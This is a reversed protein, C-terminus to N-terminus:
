TKGAWNKFHIAKWISQSALEATKGINNIEIKKQRGQYGIEKMFNSLSVAPYGRCGVEAAWIRVRWGKQKGEQAIREYKSRKLEGSVETRDESPVTLEVLGLQKTKKSTLMTDSRLNTVTVETPIKLKRELDM